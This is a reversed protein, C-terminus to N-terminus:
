HWVWLKFNIPGGPVSTLYIKAIYM